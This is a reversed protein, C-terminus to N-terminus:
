EPGIVLNGDVDKYNKEITINVSNIKNTQAHYGDTCNVPNGQEDYFSTKTLRKGEKYEYRAIAYGLNDAMTVNGEADVYTLETVKGKNNRKRQIFLNGSVEAQASVALALFLTVAALVILLMKKM